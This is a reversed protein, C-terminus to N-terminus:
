AWETIEQGAKAFRRSRGSPWRVAALFRLIRCGELEVLDVLPTTSFGLYVRTRQETTRDLCPLQGCTPRRVRSLAGGADRRGDHTLRDSYAPVAVFRAIASCDIQEWRLADDSSRAYRNRCCIRNTTVSLPGTPERRSRHIESRVGRTRDDFRASRAGLM